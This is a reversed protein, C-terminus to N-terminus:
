MSQKGTPRLLGQENGSDKRGHLQVRCQLARHGPQGCRFCNGNFKDQRWSRAAQHFRAASTQTRQTLGTDRRLPFSEGYNVCRLRKALRVLESLSSEKPLELLRNAIGPPMGAIFQERLLVEETTAALDPLNVERLADRLVQLFEDISQGPMYRVRHFDALTGGHGQLAEELRTEISEITLCENKPIEDYAALAKGHFRTPLLRLIVEDCWENATQVRRVRRFYQRVSGSSFEPLSVPPIPSPRCESTGQTQNASDAMIGGSGGIYCVVWKVWRWIGRLILVVARGCNMVILSIVQLVESLTLFDM